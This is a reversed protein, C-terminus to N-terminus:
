GLRRRRAIGLCRRLGAASASKPHQVSPRRGFRAGARRGAPLNWRRAPRRGLDNTRDQPRSCKGPEGGRAAPWASVFFRRVPNRGRRCGLSGNTRHLNRPRQCAAQRALRRLCAAVAMALVYRQPSSALSGSLLESFGRGMWDLSPDGSLNEFRLVALRAAVRNPRSCNTLCVLLCAFLGVRCFVRSWRWCNRSNLCTACPRSNPIKWCSRRQRQFRRRSGQPHLAARAREPRGQCLDQGPLLPVQRAGRRQAGALLVGYTSHHEFVDRSRALARDRLSRRGGQIEQARFLRHGSQQLHIGIRAVAEARAQLIAHSQRLAKRRLLGHGSQQHSRSIASQAQIPKEYHRMAAELQLMQHYAIGIKNWIVASDLPRRRLLGRRSRSVDQSGDPYRGRQEPDAASKAIDPVAPSAAPTDFDLASQHRPCVSGSLLLRNFRVILTRTSVM